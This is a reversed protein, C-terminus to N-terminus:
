CQTLLGPRHTNESACRGGSGDSASRLRGSRRAASRSCQICDSPCPLSSVSGICEPKKLVVEIAHSVPEPEEFAKIAPLIREVVLRLAQPDGDKAMQVLKQFVPEVAEDFRARPTM